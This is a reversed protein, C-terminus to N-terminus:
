EFYGRMKEALIAASPSLNGGAIAKTLVRYMEPNTPVQVRPRPVARLATTMRDEPWANPDSASFEVLGDTM